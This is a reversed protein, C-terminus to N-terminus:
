RTRGTGAPAHELPAMVSASQGASTGRPRLSFPEHSPIADARRRRRNSHLAVRRQLLRAYAARVLADLRRAVAATPRRRFAGHDRRRPRVARFLRGSATVIGDSEGAENLFRALADGGDVANSRRRVGRAARREALNAAPHWAGGADSGDSRAADSRVKGKSAETATELLPAAYIQDWYIQLNTRLRIRCSPGGLLGTVEKTMMRPLGAPFGFAGGVQKWQGDAGLRELVPPEMPTGAQQAAFISEPYPYDTWGALCLFLRDRPGFKALRDGFDLEVWHDEAFGLWSRKDFDDVTKGDRERLTETADRGRHDHASVPFVKTRFALLDQSPPPDEAFREDPYVTVDKPHDLVMLRLYDLYLIEDMPEAIKLVYQGDRSALQDAEIKVSEEPRPGRQKVM